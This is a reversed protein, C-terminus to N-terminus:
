EQPANQRTKRAALKVKGDEVVVEFQVDKGLRTALKKRQVALQAEFSARDVTADQGQQRKAAVYRDYL